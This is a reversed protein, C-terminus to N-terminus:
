TSRSAGHELVRAVEVRSGVGLKRFINRMHSEVTKVSLFLEAAIEANTHRGLVLRAIEAERQTLTKVGAGDASGAATRRHVRRGLARLEREARKRHRVAGCAALQTLATELESVARERDGARALARGALTRAVAADVTAGIAEAADVASLARDAAKAADGGELAVAAAARHAMAVSMGLGVREATSAARTAAQEAQAPHDLALWCRTLLEFYNARWGWPILPLEDGGAAGELVDIARRAEGAESLASALAVGAMTSVMNDDLHRTVQVSEESVSLALELDGGALATFGRSLLNWGLAETNGSLRASEVAGELLAASEAIRGRTHLCNSLVPILVPSMGGQGSARAIALGRRAHASAADFRQLYLEATCLNALADLRREVEDDPLADLLVAARSRHRDADPTAGVFAAAVALVGEGAAILVEDELDTSAALAREGWTRMGEFETRYFDGVALGLMLAVSPASSREAVTELAALLRAHAEGHRGLLQELGACTGILQVRVAAEDEQTLSISELLAERSEEFHGTAARAGALATLLDIRDSRPAGEPALRLASAFWRAASEPAREAAEDGAERLLAVAAMDGHRGSHEVHHARATAPAGRAALAEATREHAALRAGPPCSVYVARRVLPHRFHFRRPVPAPRVLDRAILEDLARVADADTMGASQVALDLEFPDGAVAAADAFRRAPGSLADLEDVIAAAVAAPVGGDAMAEGEGEGEMRALQLMYFPNGGSARYLRDLEATGAGDVLAEADSPALPGLGIRHVADGGRLAAEIAAELVRDVQGARFTAAVVVPAAPPRRLLHALLELSAGDAWHLDDLVLVLPERAALREILERVARHARFRESATTPEDSGPDLSRLAPFVGALEGLDEAALRNFARPELSGLYEDFADVVVGFPLEREFEAASGQLTLCGRQEARRALAVLLSTKGIGPEGTVFVFRPAGACGEELLGELLRLEEDRGVLQRAPQTV